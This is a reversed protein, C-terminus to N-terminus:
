MKLAPPTCTATTSLPTTRRCLTVTARSKPVCTSNRSPTLAPSRTIRLGETLRASPALTCIRGLASHLTAAPHRRPVLHDDLLRTSRCALAERLAAANHIEAM